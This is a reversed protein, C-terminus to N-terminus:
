IQGIKLCVEFFGSKCGSVFEEETMERFLCANQNILEEVNLYCSFLSDLKGNSGSIHWMQFKEKVTSIGLIDSFFSNFFQVFYVNNNKWAVIYDYGKINELIQYYSDGLKFFVKHLSLQKEVVINNDYLFFNGFQGKELLALCLDKCTIKSFVGKETDLVDIKKQSNMYKHLPIVPKQKQVDYIYQEEIYEKFPRIDFLIM